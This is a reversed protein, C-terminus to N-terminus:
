TWRHWEWRAGANFSAKREQDPTLSVNFERVAGCRSCIGQVAVTGNPSELLWHHACVKPTSTTM